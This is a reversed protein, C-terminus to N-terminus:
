HVFTFLYWKAHADRVIHVAFSRRLGVLALRDNQPACRRLIEYWLGLVPHKAKSLM